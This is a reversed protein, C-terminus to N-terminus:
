SSIEQPSSEGASGSSPEASRRSGAQQYVRAPDYSSGHRHLSWCLKALKRAVACLAGTTSLGKARERAYQEKFPSERCRLNAQAALYLLRRLEADGQRTLGREGKKTGSAVVGVDLGLYAVFADPHAFEKSALRSAVAAATVPGIGPVQRLRSVAAFEDSTASWQAIQKDLAAKQEELARIAEGLAEAAHPLERQQLSLRSLASSIGKRASLLQDVQEVTHSKLRYRALPQSLAFLALGRSDVRDTKARSTISALFSKAKKPPALLVPYGAQSAQQVLLHGFRGSPELVLPTGTPTRSLLSAIGAPTNEVSQKWRTNQTAAEVLTAALTNKSVDIGLM